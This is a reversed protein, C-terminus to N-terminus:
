ETSLTGEFPTRDGLVYRILDFYDFVLSILIVAMVVSLIIKPIKTLEPKRWVAFLYVMLPTWFVIHPLGLLKVYGVMNYLQGTAFAAAFSAVVTLLGALRTPKWIVLSVPLIFAGFFLIRLWISIWEPQLAIAEQFTM